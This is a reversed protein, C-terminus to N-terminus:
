PSESECKLLHNFSLELDIKKIIRGKDKKIELIENEKRKFKQPFRQRQGEERQWCTNTDSSSVDNEEGKWFLLTQDLFWTKGEEKM